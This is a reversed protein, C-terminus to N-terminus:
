EECFSIIERPLLNKDQLENILVWEFSIHDEQSKIEINDEIDLTFIMNLEHHKGKDTEYTNELFDKYRINKIQNKNLGTEEKLEKYITDILSDGFEVHGGPLFYHKNENNQCLLILSDRKIILRVILEINNMHNIIDCNFFGEYVLALIM